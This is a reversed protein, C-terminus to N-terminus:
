RSGRRGAELNWECEAVAMGIVGGLAALKLWIGVHAYAIAVAALAILITVGAAMTLSQGGVARRLNWFVVHSLKWALACACVQAVWILVAIAVAAM